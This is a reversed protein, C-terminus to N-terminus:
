IGQYLEHRRPIEYTSSYIKNRLLIVLKGYYVYSMRILYVVRQATEEDAQMDRSVVIHAAL